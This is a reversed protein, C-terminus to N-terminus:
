LVVRKNLISNWSRYIEKTKQRFEIYTQITPNEENHGELSWSDIMDQFTPNMFTDGNMLRRLNDNPRGMNLHSWFSHSSGKKFVVDFWLCFCDIFDYM